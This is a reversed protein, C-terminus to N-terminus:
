GLESEHTTGGEKGQRCLEALADLDALTEADQQQARLDALLKEAEQWEAQEMKELVPLYKVAAAVYPNAQYAELIAKQERLIKRGEETKGTHFCFLGRNACYAARLEGQMRAPDLEELYQLAKEYDKKEAYAMSLNMNRCLVLNWKKAGDLLEHLEKIYRDPDKEESLIKQMEMLRKQLKQQWRVDIWISAAAACVVWCVILLKGITGNMGLEMRLVGLVASGAIVILWFIRRIQQRQKEM